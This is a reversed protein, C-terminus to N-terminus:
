KGARPVRPAEVSGRDFRKAILATLLVLLMLGPLLWGMGGLAASFFSSGGAPPDLRVAVEAPARRAPKGQKQDSKGEGKKGGSEGGAPASYTTGYDYSSGSDSGSGSDGSPAPKDSGGPDPEPRPEPVPPPPEEYEDIVDARATNITGPVVGSLSLAVSGLLAVLCAASVLVFIPVSARNRFTQEM